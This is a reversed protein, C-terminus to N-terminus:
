IKQWAMGLNKLESLIKKVGVSVGSVADLVVLAADAQTIGCVRNKILQPKGPTNIFTIDMKDESMQVRSINQTHASRENKSRDM